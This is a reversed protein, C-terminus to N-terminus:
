GCFAQSFSRKGEGREPRAEVVGVGVCQGLLLVVVVAAVVVVFQGVMVRGVM